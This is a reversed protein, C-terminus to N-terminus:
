SHAERLTEISKLQSNSLQASVLQRADIFFFTFDTTPFMWLAAIPDKGKM